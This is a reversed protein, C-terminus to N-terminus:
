YRIELCFSNRVDSGISEFSCAALRRMIIHIGDASSREGAIAVRASHTFSLYDDHGLVFDCTMDESDKDRLLAAMGWGQYIFQLPILGRPRDIPWALRSILSTSPYGRDIKLDIVGNYVREFIKMKVHQRQRPLFIGPVHTPIDGTREEPYPTSMARLDFATLSYSPMRSRLSHWYKHDQVSSGRGGIFAVGDFAFLLLLHGMSLAPLRGVPTGAWQTTPANGGGGTDLFM